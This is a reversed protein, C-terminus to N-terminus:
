AWLSPKANHRDFLNRLTARFQLRDRFIKLISIDTRWYPPLKQSHPIYDGTAERM